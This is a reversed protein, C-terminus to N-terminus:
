GIHNMLSYGMREMIRSFLRVPFGVVNFYCGEIKEVFLSGLGQIAYAGAKDFAEGSQIYTEIEKESLAKFSVKTNEYETICSGDAANIVSVGTLVYHEKGSLAKLMEFADSADRPKGMVKDCLVITDAGIVFTENIQKSEGAEKNAYVKEYVDKAKMYAFHKVLEPPSMGNEKEEFSSPIVDFSLRIQSLIEKRRPSNSALIFRM